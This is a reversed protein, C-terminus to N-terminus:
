RVDFQIYGVNIDEKKINKYDFVCTYDYVCSLTNRVIHTKRKQNM